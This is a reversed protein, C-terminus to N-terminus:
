NVFGFRDPFVLSTREKEWCGIFIPMYGPLRQGFPKVVLRFKFVFEYGM